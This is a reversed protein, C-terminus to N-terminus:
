FTTLQTLQGATHLREAGLLVLRFLTTIHNVVDDATMSSTGALWEVVLENIAGVLSIGVLLYHRKELAAGTVLGIAHDAIITAFEHTVQRRLAETEVSVGVVELSGIRARRSDETYFQAFALVADMAREQKDGPRDLAHQIVQKGEDAIHQYLVQLVAERNHFHEYFHRPAVRAAACLAEISTAGYGSTGFLRLAAQLLRERREQRLTDMTQGRYRRRSLRHLNHLDM